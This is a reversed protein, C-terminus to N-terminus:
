KLKQLQKLSASFKECPDLDDLRPTFWIFDFPLAPAGFIDAYDNPSNWGDQVELFAVTLTHSQPRLRKLVIPIARDNRAHGAGTILIGGDAQRSSLALNDAMVADRVRQMRVVPKVAREPLYGCHADRVEDEMAQQTETDLPTDLQTRVVVEAPLAALGLKRIKQSIQRSLSVAALPLGAALAVDAIPQYQEWAPWGSKEWGVAPGLGAADRSNKELHATLAASQDTTLMEFGVVPRRGREVLGSLAKAQLRHHDPNDHKEGLLVFDARSAQDLLQVASTVRMEGVDWIQGVLLHESGNTTIWPSPGACGSLFLGAPVLTTLVQRLIM